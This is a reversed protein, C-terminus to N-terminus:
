VVNLRRNKMRLQPGVAITVPSPSNFSLEMSQGYSIPSREEDSCCGIQMKLDHYGAVTGGALSEIDIARWGAIFPIGCRMHCSGRPPPWGGHGAWDQM